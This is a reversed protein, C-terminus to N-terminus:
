NPIRNRQFYHVISNKGRLPTKPRVPSASDSNQSSFEDSSSVQSKGPSLLCTGEHGDRHLRIKTLWDLKKRSQCNEKNGRYPVVPSRGEVEDIVINPLNQTPSYKPTMENKKCSDLCAPPLKEDSNVISSEQLINSRKAPNESEDDETDLKRKLSSKQPTTLLPPLAVNNLDCNNLGSEKFNEKCQSSFPVVPKKVSTTNPDVNSIDKLNEPQSNVCTKSVSSFLSFSSRRSQMETKLKPSKAKQSSNKPSDGGPTALGSLWSKLSPSKTPTPDSVQKTIKKRAPSAALTTIIPHSVTPKVRITSTGIERHTLEAIGTVEGPAPTKDGGRNVRWIRMTNDDSVTAIKTMDQRCWSVCTVEANHGKLIVPSNCPKDVQWIYAMDDSSGSVLFKDDPSMCTKIYFTTNKHGRITKVPLPNYSMLDYVYIVDDTCSAYLRSNYSDLTLCSYGHKRQCNGAYPFVYSAIPESSMTYNKRLDWVKVFGDVAGASILLNDSQFSVVTVSQQSDLAPGLRNRKRQKTTSIVHANKITNIPPISGDKQNCRRDWLMIHGDRSGTALVSDDFKRFAVSRISSTHGKFTELKKSTAADWLVATQDGSGTLLKEEKEMWAIDFVANSHAQWEKLIADPGSKTTDHLVLYGNEDVLALIHGATSKVKCFSCALPPVTGGDEESALIYEERARGQFSELISSVDISGWLNEKNVNTQGYCRKLVSSFM